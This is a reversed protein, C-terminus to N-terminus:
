PASWLKSVVARCDKTTSSTPWEDYAKSVDHEEVKKEPTLPQAPEDVLPKGPTNGEKIEAKPPTSSFTEIKVEKNSHIYNGDPDVLFSMLKWDFLLSVNAEVNFITNSEKKVDPSTSDGFFIRNAYTKSKGSLYLNVKGNDRGAIYFRSATVVSENELYVGDLYITESVKATSKNLNMSDIISDKLDLESNRASLSGNMKPQEIALNTGDFKSDIIKVCPTFSKDSIKGKGGTFTSQKATIESHNIAFLANTDQYIFSSNKCKFISSNTVVSAYITSNEIKMKSDKLFIKFGGDHVDSEALTVKRM